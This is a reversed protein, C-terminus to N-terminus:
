KVPPTPPNSSAGDSMKESSSPSNNAPGKANPSITTVETFSDPNIVMMVPNGKPDKARVLFSEPMVKVDTFGAKTLDDRVQDRFHMQDTNTTPPNQNATNVNAASSPGALGAALLLALTTATATKMESEQNIRALL